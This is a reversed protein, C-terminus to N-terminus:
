GASRMRIVFAVGVLVGTGAVVPIVPFSGGDDEDPGRPGKAQPGGKKNKGNKADKPQDASCDKKGRVKFVFEDDTVHGDVSSVAKYSAKWRGPQARGIRASVTEAEVQPKKSVVDGCGDVVTFKAGQAPPETLDVSVTKPTKKLTAGHEPSTTATEGHALAASPWLLLAALPGLLWIRKRKM